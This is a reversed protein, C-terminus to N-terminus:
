DRRREIFYEPHRAVLLPHGTMGCWAPLDQPAGPDHATVRLVQGPALMRVRQRLELILDGCAMDGADWEAYATPAATVRSAPAADSDATADAVPGVAAPCAPEEATAWEWAGRYCDRHHIYTVVHRRFEVADRQVTDALCLECRPADKFGAAISVLTTHGCLADGCSPCRADRLRRLAAILTEATIVAYGM